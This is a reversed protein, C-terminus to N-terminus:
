GVRNTTWWPLENLERGVGVGKEIVIVTWEIDEPENFITRNMVLSLLFVNNSNEPGNSSPIRFGHCDDGSGISSGPVSCPLLSSFLAVGPTVYGGMMSLLSSCTRMIERRFLSLFRHELIVDELYRVTGRSTFTVLSYTFIRLLMKKKLM